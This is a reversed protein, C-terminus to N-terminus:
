RDGTRQEPEALAPITSRPVTRLNWPIKYRSLKPHWRGGADMEVESRPLVGIREWHNSGCSCELRTWDEPHKTDFSTSFDIGYWSGFTQLLRAGRTAVQFQEVATPLDAFDSSKTIYKLVEKVARNRDNVPRIDVVRRNDLNWDRRRKEESASLGPLPIIRGCVYQKLSNEYTGDLWQEFDFRTGDLSIRKANKRPAKGLGQVWLRAWDYELARKLYTFALMHRGGVDVFQDSSPLTFTADVLIHVHPHWTGEARNYTTEVAYVGGVFMEKHQALFQKTRKRILHFTRKSIKKVNGVTLTLFQPHELRDFLQRIKKQAADSRHSNCLPCLRHNCGIPVAIPPTKHSCCKAEYGIWEGQCHLLQFYQKEWCLARAWKGAPKHAKLWKELYQSRLYAESPTLALSKAIYALIWANYGDSEGAKIAEQEGQYAEWWAAEAGDSNEHADRTATQWIEYVTACLRRWLRVRYKYRDGETEQEQM